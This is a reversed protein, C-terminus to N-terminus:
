HSTHPDSVGKYFDKFKDTTGYEGFFYKPDLVMKKEGGPTPTERKMHSFITKISEANNIKDGSRHALQMLLAVIGGIAPAACSTGSAKQYTREDIHDPFSVNDGPAYVDIEGPPNHQTPKIEYGFKLGGVAIVEKHLAPYAINDAYLGCNGVAAVCIVGKNALDNILKECQKDKKREKFHGFSMVVVQCKKKDRVDYEDQYSKKLHELANIIADEEFIRGDKSVCCIYIEAKPAYKTIIGTVMTGHAERNTCWYDDRKGNIFNKGRLTSKKFAEHNVNIGSDLVAITIGEGNIGKGDVEKGDVIKSKHFETLDWRPGPFSYKTEAKTEKLKFDSRDDLIIIV